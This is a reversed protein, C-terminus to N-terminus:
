DKKLKKKHAKEFGDLSINLSFSVGKTNCKEKIQPLLIKHKDTHYGHSTISLTKLKPLCQLIEDVVDLLNDNLTPEGGSLGIHKVKRFAEQNFLNNISNRNFEDTKDARWVNCMTCQSDCIETIPLNIVQPYKILTM